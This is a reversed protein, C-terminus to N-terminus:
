RLLLQLEMKLNLVKSFKSMTEKSPYGYVWVNYIKKIEFKPHTIKNALEGDNTLLM